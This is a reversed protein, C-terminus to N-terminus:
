HLFSERHPSTILSDHTIWDFLQFWEKNYNVPAMMFLSLSIHHSLSRCIPRDLKLSICEKFIVIINFFIGPILSYVISFLSIWMMIIFNEEVKMLCLKYKLIQMNCKFFALLCCPLYAFIMFTSGLNWRPGGMQITRQEKLNWPEVM